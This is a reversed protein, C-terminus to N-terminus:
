HNKGSKQQRRRAKEEAKQQKRLAKEEAKQQKRLAKEDAEQQKRDEKAARVTAKKEEKAAKFEESLKHFRIGPKVKMKHMESTNTFSFSCLVDVRSGKMTLNGAAVAGDSQISTVINRVRVKKYRAEFVEADVQGIPLKGGKQRRMKATRPKSIDFRFDAKCAVKGIDHMEIVKGLMFSDTRVTGFVYKNLEDLAFDVNVPGAVTTLWGKFTEKKWLVSIDGTYHITGLNHLQKMLFKKVPFQSIIREKIGAQATMKDVHFRVALQQKDKLGTIGGQASVTLKKDLTSVSVNRFNLQEADGSFTVQLALPITFGSLVPAFPRAIDKLVVRGSIPSTSFSLLRHHKKSPLQLTAGSFKLQTNPLQIVVDSLHAVGQAILMKAQLSKLSLGSGKDVVTCKTVSASISDRQISHIDASLAGEVDFHGADFFGRKPKGKNKRPQHNDTVFHLGEVEAMRRGDAEVLMLSGISLRNDVVGKKTHSVWSRQVDTLTVTQRDQRGKKYKLNQLSYSQDNFTVSIRSLALQSLHLSLKKKSEKEVPTEQPESVTSDKKFADIVFQYNAASDPSPKYLQARVGEIAADTIRVEDHLLAMLKVNVSLRDLQFMKRHQLDEVELGYLNVDQSFLGISVRDIVVKTQLKESLMRTAHKLLKNQFSDTNLLFVMGVALVVLFAM